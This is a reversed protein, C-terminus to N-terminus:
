IYIKSLIIQNSTVTLTMEILTLMILIRLVGRLM